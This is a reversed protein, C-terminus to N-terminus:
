ESFVEVTHSWTLQTALPAVIQPDPFLNAFQMMRRLNRESYESGGYEEQLQTAVTSVIRKGYEARKNGLVERNIREGIQWYSMNIRTNAVAAVKAKANHIINKVDTVLLNISENNQINSEM